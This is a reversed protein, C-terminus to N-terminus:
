SRRRLYDQWYERAHRIDSNQTSKDGGCLLIVLTNGDLGFYVRYGPGFHFRIEWVGTDVLRTDGFNGSQIRDLRARIRAEMRKDLFSALWDSFPRRGDPLQYCLIEYIM